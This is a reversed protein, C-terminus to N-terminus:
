HRRRLSLDSDTCHCATVVTRHCTDDRYRWLPMLVRTTVRSSLKREAIFWFPVSHEQLRNHWKPKANVSVIMPLHDQSVTTDAYDGCTFTNYSERDLEFIEAMCKCCRRLVRKSFNMAIEGRSWAGSLYVIAKM